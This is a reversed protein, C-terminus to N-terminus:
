NRKASIELVEAPIKVSHEAEITLTYLILLLQGLTHSEEPSSTPRFPAKVLFGKEPSEVDNHLRGIGEVCRDPDCVGFRGMDLFKLRELVPGHSEDHATVLSCGDVMKMM